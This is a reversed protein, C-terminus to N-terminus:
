VLPLSSDEVLECAMVLADESGKANQYYGRRVGIECFGASRYLAIAAANSPRVELFVRGISRERAVDLMSALMARGLGRRQQAAAVGITLLEAEDVAPMLIAYGCIEGSETEEVRCIYGNDLADSFNGRTWPYVQVAQEIALVADVDAQTMDRLM